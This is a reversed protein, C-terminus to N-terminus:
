YIKDSVYKFILQNVGKLVKFWFELNYELICSNLTLSQIYLNGGTFFSLKEFYAIQPM